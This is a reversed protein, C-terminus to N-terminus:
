AANGELHTTLTTLVDVLDEPYIQEDSARLEDIQWWRHSRIVRRELSSQGALSIQASLARVLFFREESRVKEGEPLEYVVHNCAVEPGLDATLGTEEFLERSAAAEFTEDGELGGGPTAWFRREAGDRAKFRFYFLLVRQDPDLILLRASPRLRM